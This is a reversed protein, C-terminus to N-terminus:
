VEMDKKFLEFYTEIEEKLFKDRDIIEQYWEETYDKYSHDVLRSRLEVAQNMFFDLEKIILNLKAVTKFVYKKDM